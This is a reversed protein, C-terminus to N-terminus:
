DWKPDSLESQEQLSRFSLYSFEELEALGLEDSVKKEIALTVEGLRESESAENSLLVRFYIAPYDSWDRGTNFRIRVVDPSLERVVQDVQEQTPITATV